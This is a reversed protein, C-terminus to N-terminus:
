VVGGVGAPQREGNRENLHQRQPSCCYCFCFLLLLFLLLLLLLLWM